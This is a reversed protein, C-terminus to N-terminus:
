VVISPVIPEIVTEQTSCNNIRSRTARRKCFFYFKNLMTENRINKWLHLDVRSLKHGCLVTGALKGVYLEPVQWVCMRMIKPADPVRNKTNIFSKGLLGAPSFGFPHGSLREWKTTELGFRYVLLFLLETKQSQFHCIIICNGTFFNSLM